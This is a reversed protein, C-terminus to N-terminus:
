PGNSTAIFDIAYKYMLQMILGSVKLNSASIVLYITQPIYKMHLKMDSKSFLKCIKIDDFIQLAVDATAYLDLVTENPADQKQQEGGTKQQEGARKQQQQEKMAEEVSKPAM